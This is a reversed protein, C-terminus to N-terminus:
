AICMHYVPDHLEIAVNCLDYVYPQMGNGFDNGQMRIDSNCVSADQSGDSTVSYIEPCEDKLSPCIYM